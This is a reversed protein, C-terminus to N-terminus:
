IACLIVELLLIIHMLLIVTDIKKWKILNYTCNSNIDYLRVEMSESINDARKLTLNFTPLIIMKLILIKHKKINIGKSKINKIVHNITDIITPIFRITMTFILSLSKVNIKFKELPKLIKIFSYLFEKESTSITLITTYIVIEIVKLINIINDILEVKLVLNIIFIGILLYFVLKLSKLYEIFPIKSILIFLLLIFLLLIHMYLSNLNVTIITFLTFSIIKNITNLKHFLSNTLTYKSIMIDNLM